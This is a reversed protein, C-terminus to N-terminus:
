TRKTFYSICWRKNYILSEVGNNESMSIVQAGGFLQHGSKNIIVNHVTLSGLINTTTGDIKLANSELKSLKINNVDITGHGGGNARFNHDGNSSNYTMSGSSEMLQSNGSGFKIKHSKMTLDGQLELKETKLQPLTVNALESVDISSDQEGQLGLGTEGSASGSGGSKSSKLLDEITPCDSDIEYFGFLAWDLSDSSSRQIFCILEKNSTEM